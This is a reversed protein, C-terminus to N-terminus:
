AAEAEDVDGEDDGDSSGALWRWIYVGAAVFLHAVVLQWILMPWGVMLGPPNSMYVLLAWVVALLHHYWRLIGVM